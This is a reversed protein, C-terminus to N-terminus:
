PQKIKRIDQNDIQDIYHAFNTGFVNGDPFLDLMPVLVFKRENYRPHPITLNTTNVINNEAFIVDLDIIRPGNKITRIRGLASEIGMCIGLMENPEFSSEVLIVANYFDDQEAYGVPETEYIASCKIVRTNPILNLSEIANEINQKKDGINTGVSLVYQM